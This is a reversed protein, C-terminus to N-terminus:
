NATQVPSGPALLPSLVRGDVDRSVELRLLKQLTPALDLIGADLRLDRPVGPGAM